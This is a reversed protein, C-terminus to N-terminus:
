RPAGFTPRLLAVARRADHSRVEDVTLGAAAIDDALRDVQSAGLSQLVVVGDSVVHRGAVHLCTRPVDLGDGGGDVALGPDDPWDDVDDSPLYPPDALVLPFREGAGLAHELDGCRVVVSAALGNSAANAEAYECARPDIDVQVLERGSWRAAAQGIHGAGSCLELMPGPPVTAALDAAWRAQLVTWARPALVQEGYRVTIPGFALEQDAVPIM